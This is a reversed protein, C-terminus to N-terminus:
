REGRVRATQSHQDGATYISHVLRLLCALLCVLANAVYSASQMALCPHSLAVYHSATNNTAADTVLAPIRLCQRRVYGRRPM